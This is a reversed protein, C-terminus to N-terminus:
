PKESKPPETEHVTPDAEGSLDFINRRSSLWVWTGWAGLLGSFPLIVIEWWSLNHDFILCLISILCLAPGYVYPPLWKEWPLLGIM